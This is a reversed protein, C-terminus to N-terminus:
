NKIIIKKAIEVNDKTVLKVVYIGDSLNSTPFEYSANTGLEKKNFILKGAVDYLGCSSLAVQLPNSITVNKTDNNQYVVFSQSVADDVGLAGDKFTLEFRTRNNQAAPLTVDFMGTKINHYVATEKDYIYVNQNPDFGHLVAAVKVKFNTSQTCRFGLPIRKDIEFKVVDIVYENPQQDLVYYFEAGEASPSRGDMGYDFGDTAKDDFGLTTPRVGGNNFMAHIRLQPVYAKKVTTYDIDAVNLIKPFYEDTDNDQNTADSTTRAFQSFTAAGEKVFTRFTNKMTVSGAATGMVMFGQGIPAFRRQFATGTGFASGGEQNGSGDYNWFAAPTYGTGATYTGYGGQYAAILHSNVVVQEWFLARGDIVAANSPDLLFANLDIASPYPNGVLTFNGNSVLTAISGDNPKGRFDYRQASGSGSTGKMTFGEGPNVTFTSNVHVWQAYTNSTVFKWIWYPAIALPSSVGNYNSMPLITANYSNTLDTVGKLQNIGFPNNISTATAINGVPSCWYNYQFNNVTGEQYVSLNGVGKNAGSATTGQLLQADNRLYFNSTSANLEVDQKVFVVENSAYVYTDPSVYLQAKITTQFLFGSLLLLSGKLIKSKM